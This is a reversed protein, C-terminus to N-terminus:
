ICYFVSGIKTKESAQKSIQQFTNELNYLLKVKNNKEMAQESKGGTFWVILYTRGLQLYLTVCCCYIFMVFKILFRCATIQSVREVSHENRLTEKEKAMDLFLLLVILHWFAMYSTSLINNM